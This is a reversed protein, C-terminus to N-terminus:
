LAVRQRGGMPNTPGGGGSGGGAVATDRAGWTHIGEFVQGQGGFGICGGVRLSRPDVVLDPRASQLSRM